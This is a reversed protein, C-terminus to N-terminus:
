WPLGGHERIFGEAHKYEEYSIQNSMWALRLGSSALKFEGNRLEEGIEPLDDVISSMIPDDDIEAGIREAVAAQREGASIMEPAPPPSSVVPEAPPPQPTDGGPANSKAVVTQQSTDATPAKTMQIYIAYGVLALLLIVGLTPLGSSRNEPVPLLSKLPAPNNPM